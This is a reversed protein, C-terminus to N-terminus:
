TKKRKDKMSLLYNIYLIQPTCDFGIRYVYRITEDITHTKLYTDCDARIKEYVEQQRKMYAERMALVEQIEQEYKRAEM